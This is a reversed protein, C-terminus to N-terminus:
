RPECARARASCEDLRLMADISEFDLPKSYCADCGSSLARDRWTEDVMHATLAVIPIDCTARTARLRRTAEFGDVVPMNLDMLVLDPPAETARRVAEEGNSAEIVEHGRAELLLRMVERTDAFDDAVLVRM